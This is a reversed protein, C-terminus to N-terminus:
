VRTKFSRICNNYRVTFYESGYKRRMLLIGIIIILLVVTTTVVQFTYDKSKSSLSTQTDIEFNTTNDVFGQTINIVLKQGRNSFNNNRTCVMNYKGTNNMKVPHINFYPEARNLLACNNVNEEDNRREVLDEYSFCLNRDNIPQNLSALSRKVNSDTFLSDLIEGPYSDKLNNLEVLNSRDTGARGEGANNPPNFDSGAWQFHVYDDTTINLRNPVFDYEICNRVQAINGRKGQVNLNYINKTELEVPRKLINFTFSRDEFVRGYQATNIALRLPVGSVNIVPNNMIPSNNGNYSSNLNWPTESTSINYRLRLVCNNLDRNVKPLVWNFTQHTNSGNQIGLRNIISSPARLCQLICDPINTMSNWSDYDMWIGERNICQNYDIDSLRDDNSDFCEYRPSNCKSNNIYYECRDTNTTLVAIDIWPTDCWYPYYDREEPCEFGYRNGNPNQRTYKASNGRLRQNATFLGYNRSRSECRQYYHYTEHRGYRNPNELFSDEVEPITETCTDGVSNQPHGNRVGDGLTNECAYQLIYQCENNEGCAHQSTWRIPLVSEEYYNMQYCTINEPYNAGEPRNCSIAYGGAANNQSDFIRNANRRDNTRRDCRNNSGRPNHLYIDAQTISIITLIILLSYNM